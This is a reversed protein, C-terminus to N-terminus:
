FVTAAVCEEDAGESTERRYRSMKVASRRREEDRQKLRRQRETLAEPFTAFFEDEPKPPVPVFLKKSGDMRTRLLGYEELKALHSRTTRESKGYYLALTDVNPWAYGEKENYFHLILGYLVTMEAKYEPLLTYHFLLDTPTRVFTGPNINTHSM